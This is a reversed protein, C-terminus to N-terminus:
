FTLNSIYTIYCIKNESKNVVFQFLYQVWYIIYYIIYLLIDLYLILLLLIKFLINYLVENYHLRIINNYLNKEFNNKIVQLTM